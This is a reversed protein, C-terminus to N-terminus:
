RRLSAWFQMPIGWGLARTKGLIVRDGLFLMPIGRRLTGQREWSGDKNGQAERDRRM